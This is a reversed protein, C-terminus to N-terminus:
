LDQLLCLAERCTTAEVCAPELTGKIVVVSAGLITGDVSRAIALAACWRTAHALAGDVNVKVVDNPLPTWRARAVGMRATGQSVKDEDSELDM